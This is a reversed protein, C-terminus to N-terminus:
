EFLEPTPVSVRRKIKVFDEFRMAQFIHHQNVWQALQIYEPKSYCSEYRQVYANQNNNRLFNLRELDEQFTTNFGVLVYEERFMGIKKLCRPCKM